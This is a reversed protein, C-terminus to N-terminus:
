NRRSLQPQLMRCNDLERTLSQLTPIENVAAPAVFEQDERCLMITVDGAGLASAKTDETKLLIIDGVAVVPQWNENAPVVSKYPDHWSVALVKVRVMGKGSTGGSIYGSAYGYGDYQRAETRGEISFGTISGPAALVEVTLSYITTVAPLAYNAAYTGSQGPPVPQPTPVAQQGSQVAPANEVQTVVKGCAVLAFVCSVVLLWKMDMGEM